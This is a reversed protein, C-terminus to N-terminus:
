LVYQTTRVNKCNESQENQYACELAKTIDDGIFYNCEKFLRSVASTIEEAKIVRLEM